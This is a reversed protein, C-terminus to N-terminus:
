SLQGTQHLALGTGRFGDGWARVGGVMARIEGIQRRSNAFMGVFGISLLNRDGLVPRIDILNLVLVVGIEFLKFFNPVLAVCLEVM